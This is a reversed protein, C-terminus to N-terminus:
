VQKRTTKMTRGQKKIGGKHEERSTQHNKTTHNHKKRQKETDITM